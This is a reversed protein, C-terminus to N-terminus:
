RLYQMEDGVPLGAAAVVACGVLDGVISMRVLLIIVAFITVQDSGTKVRVSLDRADVTAMRRPQRSPLLGDQATAGFAIGVLGDRSLHVHGLGGHLNVDLCYKPLNPDVVTRLSRDPRHAAVRLNRLVARWWRLRRRDLPKGDQIDCVDQRFRVP